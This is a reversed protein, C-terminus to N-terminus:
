EDHLVIMSELLEKQHVQNVHKKLDGKLRFAKLCVYCGFRKVNAHSEHHSKWSGKNKPNLEKSCINCLFVNRVYPNVWGDICTAPDVEPVEVKDNLYKVEDDVFERSSSCSAM